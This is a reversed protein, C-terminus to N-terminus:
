PRPVPFQSSGERAPQSPGTRFACWPSGSAWARTPVVELKTLRALALMDMRCLEGHHHALEGYPCNLFEILGEASDKQWRPMYGLRAFPAVAAEVGEADSRGQLRDQAGAPGLLREGLRVLFADRDGGESRAEDLLCGALVRFAKPFIDAANGTLSYALRPRGPGARRRPKPELVLGQSQLIELHHRVAAGTLRLERSLEGVTAEGRRRLIELIRQRKPQM